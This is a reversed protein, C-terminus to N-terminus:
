YTVRVHPRFAVSRPNDLAYQDKLEEFTALSAKALDAWNTGVITSTKVLLNWLYAEAGAYIMEPPEDTVDLEKAMLPVVATCVFRLSLRTVPMYMLMVSKGGLPKYLDSGLDNWVEPFAGPNIRQLIHHLEQVDVNTTNYIPPFSGYGSQPNPFTIPQVVGNLELGVLSGVPSNPPIAGSGTQLQALQQSADNPNVTSYYNVGLATAPIGTISAFQISSNMGGVTISATPSVLTEGLDNFLTYGFLYSGPQYLGTGNAIETVVPPTTPNNLALNNVLNGWQVVRTTSDQPVEFSVPVHRHPYSRALSWNIAQLWNEPRFVKYLEYATGATPGNNYPAPWTGQITMVGTSQVWGADSSIRRWVTPAGAQNINGPNLVIWAENWEDDPEARTTDIATSASGNATFAGPGNSQIDGGWYNLRQGLNRRLLSYGTSIAL